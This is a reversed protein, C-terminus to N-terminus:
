PIFTGAGGSVRVGDLLAVAAVVPLPLIGFAIARKRTDGQKFMATM